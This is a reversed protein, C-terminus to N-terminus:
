RERMAAERGVAKWRNTAQNDASEHVAVPHSSNTLVQALGAALLSEDDVSSEMERQYSAVFEDDVTRTHFKANRFIESGLIHRCFSINTRVGAIEYDELARVMRFRAAERSEARAILKSIMPDYYRSIEVGERM